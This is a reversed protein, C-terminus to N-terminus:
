WPRNKKFDAATKFSATKSEAKAESTTAGALAKRDKGTPPTAQSSLQARLITWGARYNWRGKSDILDNDMVIKLLKNPDIKENTPNLTADTEIASIEAHMYETAEKVLKEEQSKAESVRKYAREEAERLLKDEHARYEDWSQQDGNFWSPINTNAANQQRATGFEERIKRLDDQHRTEQDNFRKNWEDERSKWRPHEHFPVNNDETKPQTNNPQSGETSPDPTTGTQEGPQSGASNGTETNTSPFAPSGETRFQATIEESM